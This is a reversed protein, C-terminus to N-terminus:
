LPDGPETTAFQPYFVTWSSDNIKRFIQKSELQKAMEKALIDAQEYTVTIDKKELFSRIGYQLDRLFFNSNHFVPFRARLYNLLV